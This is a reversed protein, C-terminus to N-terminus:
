TLSQEIPLRITFTSGQGLVSDVALTGGHLEVLERAISLGLGTGRVTGESARFFPEFVRSLHEPAIGVGTDQVVIAACPSHGDPAISARVQIQGHPPTYNIANVILNTLVQQISKTDVYLHLPEVPLKTELTIQKQTAEAQQVLVIDTLLDQLVVAERKLQIVGHEFRTIDLLDEILSAMHNAARDLVMLHETFHEPQKRLLYLRTKLNTLPTRLEHSANAIFRTKQTQLQREATVDRAIIVTGVPDGAPGVVRTITLAADFTVGEQRRLKVEGRWIAGPQTLRQVVTPIERDLVDGSQLLSIPQDVLTQSSYGTMLALARNAYGIKFADDTTYIVGEGMADFIAQLLLQQQQLEATREKVRQELVANLERLESEARTREILEQQAWTYLRANDVAISALEAFHGLMTLEQASFVRGAETHGLCLVGVTQTGSKLPIGVMAHLNDLHPNPVRGEWVAYDGVVISAGALWVKGVLGEGPKTRDGVYLNFQGTGVRGVIETAGPYPILYVTAHDTGVMRGAWVVVTELLDIVDLRNMLALTIEHLAVLYENQRRLEEETQHRATVDRVYLVIGQIGPQDLFNRMMIELYRWSGDKHKGRLQVPQDPFSSHAAFGQLWAQARPLDDPHVYALGQTRIVEDPTYGMMRTVCPSTYRVTGDAELVAIMDLGNEILARFLNADPAAPPTGNRHTSRPADSEVLPQVPEQNM